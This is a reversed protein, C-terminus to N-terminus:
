RGGVSDHPVANPAASDARLCLLFFYRCAFCPPCKGFDSNRSRKENEAANLGAALTGCRASRLAARLVKGSEDGGEM